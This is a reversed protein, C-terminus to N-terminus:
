LLNTFFDSFSYVLVFAAILFPGLPVRAAALPPTQALKSTKTKAGTKVETKATTKTRVAPASARTRLLIPIMVLCALLNALFLNILALWPTALALGLALGLLWDGDGVWRGRSILYLLM